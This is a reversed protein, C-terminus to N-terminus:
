RMDAKALTESEPARITLVPNTALRVVKEAVSGFVVRRWGTMGHTAIVIMDARQQQAIRVIEEAANGRALLTRVSLGERAVQEAMQRLTQDAHARLMQEHEPVAPLFGAENPLVPLILLVNLLWLQAGFHAALEAAIRVAERSPESFDSPCLITRLPLM